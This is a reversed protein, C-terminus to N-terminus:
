RWFRRASLLCHVHHAHRAAGIRAPAAQLVPSVRVKCFFNRRAAMDADFVVLVEEGPIDSPSAYSAFIVKALVNNLNSSKGNIEGKARQRRHPTPALMSLHQAHMRM